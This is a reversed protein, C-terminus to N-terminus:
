RVKAAKRAPKRTSPENSDPDAPRSNPSAVAGKHVPLSVSVLTGENERSAIELRGSLQRVRERMGLIGVGLPRISEELNSGGPEFGKGFDKIELVIEDGKRILRVYGRPSGSYRHVNTLSEQVIRFLAIEAEPSLRPFEPDFEVSIDIGSRASFGEVYWKLAPGLGLEEILPPHLLYSLTRVEETIRKNVAACESLVKRTEPDLQLDRELLNWLMMSQVALSQGTIDHLDRAIRRREEDQLALLRTSLERLSQESSRLAEAVQVMDTLETAIVCLHKRSSASASGLTFRVTREPKGDSRLVVQGRGRKRLLRELDEHGRWSIHDLLRTGILRERTSGLIEAFRDNVYLVTGASDLTAAGETFNDVLVRYPHESDQLVVVQDGKEGSVVLADIGGRRIAQVIEEFESQYKM